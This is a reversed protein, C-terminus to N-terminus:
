STRQWRKLEPWGRMGTILFFLGFALAVLGLLGGGLVEGYDIPLARITLMQYTTLSLSVASFARVLSPLVHWHADQRGARVVRNAIRIGPLVCRDGRLIVACESIGARTAEIEKLNKSETSTM